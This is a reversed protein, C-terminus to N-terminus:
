RREIAVLAPLNALEAPAYPEVNDVIETQAFSIVDHDPVV